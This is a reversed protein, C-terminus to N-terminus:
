FGLKEKVFIVHAKRGMFTPERNLILLKSIFSGGMGVSKMRADELPLVYDRIRSM